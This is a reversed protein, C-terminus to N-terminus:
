NSFRNKYRVSAAQINRDNGSSNNAFLVNNGEVVGHARSSNQYTINEGKVNQITRTNDFILTDNGNGGDASRIFSDKAYLRDDGDKLDIHGMFRVNEFEINDANNTGTVDGLLLNGILTKNNEKDIKIYAEGKGNDFNKWINIKVGNQLEVYDRGYSKIDAKDIKVGNITVFDGM